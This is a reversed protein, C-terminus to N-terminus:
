LAGVSTVHYYAPIDHYPPLISFQLQLPVLIISYYTLKPVADPNAM